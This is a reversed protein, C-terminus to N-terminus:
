QNEEIKIKSVAGVASIEKFLKEINADVPIKALIALKTSHNTVDLTADVSQTKIGHSALIKLVGERNAMDEDFWINIYKFREAPFLKRELPELWALAILVLVLTILAPEWLGGGISLGIAASVWLSSATTMGKINNGIKMFAGAGLMGIAAVVQAAIRGPDGKDLGVTQPMWISLIMLLCSGLSILIHTRLGATQRRMEREIGIAGGALGALLLRIIADMTGIQTTTLNEILNM